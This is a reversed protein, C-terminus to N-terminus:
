VGDYILIEQSHAILTKRGVLIDGGRWKVTHSFFPTFYVMFLLLDKVIIVLPYMILLTIKKRDQPNVFFLNLYELIMKLIFSILIVPLWRIGGFPAFLIALILPNVLIETLYIPRKLNYRLKAWRMMRNFFGAVTTTRNINTVWTFNTSIPFKSKTYAEGMMYDEALYDKFYSFGGFRDLTRKEILMSKGVIIQEKLIYWASIVNGSLFHNIYANEIMSGMSEAGTARIPSFVIKSDKILYEGVLKKLTDIEIRINSDTVWYLCGRAHKEMVSLKHIKPNDTESHGTEIIKCPIHPFKNQMKKIIPVIPDGIADVGFLLEFAPYDQYFFSSFNDEIDDDLNKVPKLISVLPYDTGVPKTSKSGRRFAITFITYNIFVIFSFGILVLFVTNTM